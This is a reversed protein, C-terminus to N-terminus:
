KWSEHDGRVEYIVFFITNGPVERLLTAGLGRWIGTGYCGENKLIRKVVDVPGAYPTHNTPAGAQIRCQVHSEM